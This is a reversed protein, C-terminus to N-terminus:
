KRVQQGQPPLDGPLPMPRLGGGPALEPVAGYQHLTDLVAVTPKIEYAKRLYELGRDRDGAILLARGYAELTVPNTPEAIVAQRYTIMAMDMDGGAEYARAKTILVNATPSLQSGVQRATETARQYEGKVRLAEAKGDIAKMHSPSAQIASEFYFVAKDAYTMAAITTQEAARAKALDLYCRGLWYCINPDGPQGKYASEFDAM